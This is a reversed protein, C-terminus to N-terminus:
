DGKFAPQRKEFFANVGEAFDATRAARQFAALEADLQTDLRSDFSRRLLAKIGAYSAPGRALREATELAKEVLEGEEYVEALLGWDLAQQATFRDATYILRAAQSPGIKRPLHYTMSGDPSGGLNTYATTFKTERGAVAFDAAALLSLGVGAASGHAACIVPQPMRDIIKIGEHIPTILRELAAPAQSLDGAFEGIDGGAMFARGNGKFLVAKVGPDGEIALLEDRVAVAMETNLANLSAPRNFSLVALPGDREIILTESAM